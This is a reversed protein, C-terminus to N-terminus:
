VWGSYQTITIKNKIFLRGLLITLILVGLLHSYLIYNGSVPLQLLHEQNIKM